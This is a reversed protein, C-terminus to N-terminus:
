QQKLRLSTTVLRGRVGSQCETSRVPLFSINSRQILVQVRRNKWFGETGCNEDGRAENLSSNHELPLTFIYHHSFVCVLSISCCILASNPHHLSPLTFSIHYIIRLRFRFFHLPPPLPPGLM